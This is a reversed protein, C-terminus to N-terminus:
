RRQRVVEYMLVGAAVSANLSNIQGCMPLSVLFDCEERMLRSIGKGESGIVLALPGSLDTECWAAENMEAGYIWIGRQKLNRICAVLNPVRAVKVVSAAGASTKYVTAGLSASRRKPLIVGDAGCAEATRLIAGLNHPDEIEDCIILFPVSGKHESVALIDEVSAYEACACLAVVGQHNVGSALQDLRRRDVSKVVVGREKALARIKGAPNGGRSAATDDSEALYITDLERESRLAELVANRGAIVDENPTHEM